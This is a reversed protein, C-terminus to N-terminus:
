RDLRRCFVGGLGGLIEGVGLNQVLNRYFNYSEQITVKIQAPIFQLLNGKKDPMLFIVRSITEM